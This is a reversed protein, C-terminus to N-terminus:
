AEDANHPIDRLIGACNINRNPGARDVNKETTEAMEESIKLLISVSTHQGKTFNM